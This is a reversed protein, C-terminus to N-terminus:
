KGFARRLGVLRDILLALVLVIITLLSGAASIVPSSEQSMYTFIRVPLTVTQASSLFLALNVDEFSIIFAFAAGGAIGPFVIPLTVRFFAKLPSAGLNQAALELKRDFGSLSTCALRIAYPAAILLHGLILSFLSSAIGARAYLQLIAAGLVIAPIVLPSLFLANLFDRGIFRFRVIALGALVGIVSALIAVVTAVQLSVLLSTAFEDSQLVEAYWRLSVGVPPFSVYDAATLSSLLVVLIPAALFLCVLATFTALVSPLRAIRTRARRKAPFVVLETAADQM